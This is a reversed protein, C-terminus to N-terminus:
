QAYPNVYPKPAEQQDDDEMGPIKAELMEKDRFFHIAQTFADVYDDHVANPFSLLEHMFEECWSVPQGPNKASELVYVRGAECFPAAANARTIKDDKNPNYSYAPVGIMKLDQLLTLGSGKKEVLVANPRTEMDKEGYKAKVDACVRRRLAPWELHDSWADCVLVCNFGYKPHAFIGLVLCATPDNMTDETFATDYSQLVYKLLPLKADRPWLRFGARKFIGGEEPAPRQQLQGAVAYATMDSKLDALEDPGFREPWLLEGKKTRPDCFGLVTKRKDLEYEAPLNLHVWKGTKGLVHGALDAEHGRQMIILKSGTKPNNLRTSMVNDWWDLVNARKIDSHIERMNHPDDVAILDGGEGTATGDVSTSLRYGGLNNEYRTKANQDGTLQFKDGWRAQYWPSQILRRSKLADRISLTQAYSSFLFKYYPKFTWLWCPLMVSSCLSKMHRPPINILLNRIDGRVLAELHDCIAQIHWNDLYPTGPEVIEFAVKTFEHLSQPLLKRDQLIEYHALDRDYQELEERSMQALDAEDVEFM